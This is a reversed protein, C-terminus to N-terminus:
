NGSIIKKENHDKIMLKIADKIFGIKQFDEEEFNTCAEYRELVINVKLIYEIFKEKNPSTSEKITEVDDILDTIRMTKDM